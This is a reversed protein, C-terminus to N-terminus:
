DEVVATVRIEVRMGPAGLASVGTETWVPARDGMRARFQEVMVRNTTEGIYGAEEPVHYSNVHVVDSWSAGAAQLVRGVNDFARVIEEELDDPFTLDDDWGGQGSIEVRNGVRVAQHYRMRELMRDGYGPVTFFQPKEDVVATAEIEVLHEPVDLAAVGILAAPPPATIGLRAAAREMGELLQPMKDPTWDVVYVTLRVVDDLGAGAARLAVEVNAYSQEVQAALGGAGVTVGDADWAVQGAVFVQRTGTAVAVQHYAASRVLGEPNSLTVSM